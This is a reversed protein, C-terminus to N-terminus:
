QARKEVKCQTQQLCIGNIEMISVCWTQLRDTTKEASVYM